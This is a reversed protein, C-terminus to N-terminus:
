DTVTCIPSSRQRQMQLAAGNCLESITAAARQSEDTTAATLSPDFPLVKERLLPKKKEKRQGGHGLHHVLLQQLHGRCLLLPVADRPESPSAKEEVAVVTPEGLAQSNGTERSVLVCAEEHRQEWGASRCATFSGDSDEQLM